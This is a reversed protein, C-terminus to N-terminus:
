EESPFKPANAWYDGDELITDNEELLIECIRPDDKFKFYYRGKKNPKEDPYKHWEITSILNSHKANDILEIARDLIRSAKEAQSVYVSSHIIDQAISILTELEESDIVIKKSM